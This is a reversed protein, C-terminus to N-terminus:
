ERAASANRASETVSRGVPKDQRQEPELVLRNFWVRAVREVKARAEAETKFDGLNSKMGPLASHAAYNLCANGGVWNTSGVSWGGCRAIHGNSFRATSQAWEIKLTYTLAAALIPETIVNM